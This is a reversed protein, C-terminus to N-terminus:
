YALFKALKAVFGCAIGNTLLQSIKMAHVYMTCVVYMCQVHLTWCVGNISLYEAIHGVFMAGFITNMETCVNTLEQCTDAFVDISKTFRVCTRYVCNQRYRCFECVVLRARGQSRRPKTQLALSLRTGHSRLSCFVYRFRALQRALIVGVATTYLTCVNYM